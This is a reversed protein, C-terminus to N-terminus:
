SHRAFMTLWSTNGARAVLKALLDAQPDKLLIALDKYMGSEAVQKATVEDECDLLGEFTDSWNEHCTKITEKAPEPIRKTFDDFVHKSSSGMKTHGDVLFRLCVPDIDSVHEVQYGVANM